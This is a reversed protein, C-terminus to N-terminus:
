PIARFARCLVGSSLRGGTYHVGAGAGAGACVHGKESFRTGTHRRNNNNNNYIYFLSLLTPASCPVDDACPGYM